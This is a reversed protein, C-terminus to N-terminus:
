EDVMGGEMVNLFQVVGHATGLPVISRFARADQKTYKYSPDILDRALGGAANVANIATGVSPIDKLSPNLGRTGGNRTNQTSVLGSMGPVVAGALNLGDQMVSTISSYALAGKLLGAGTLKDHLYKKRDADSKGQAGMAAKASYVLSSMALGYMGTFVSMSDAMHLQRMSQKELGVIPYNRFQTLMSGLTSHMWVHTEGVLPKQILQAAHKHIGEVFQDILLPDNWKHMNMRQLTESEWEFHKEVDKMRKFFATDWGVAKLRAEQGSFKGTAKYGTETFELGKLYGAMKNAQLAVTMQQQFRKISYMGSIWGSLERASSTFRDLQRIWAADTGLKDEVRINPPFLMHEDWLRGTWAQMDQLLGGDVTGDLLSKRFTRVAPLQEWMNRLGHEGMIQSFEAIQPMGAQALLSLGTWDMFRRANRNVGGAVPRSLLQDYTGAIVTKMHEITEPTDGAKGLGELVATRLATWDAESAIGKAALASRGSVEGVYRQHLRQMDNDVVDLLSYQKGEHEFTKLLDVGTRRKVRASAGSDSMTADIRALLSDVETPNLGESNMLMGRLYERSDKSLLAHPNADLGLDNTEARLWVQKAIKKSDKLPIGTVETVSEAYANKFKDSLGPVKHLMRMARGQWLLQVYGPREVIAEALHVGTEKMTRLASANAKDLADAMRQTAGGFPSVHEVGKAHANTRLEMETRLERNMDDSWSTDLVDRWRTKGNEARWAREFQKFEPQAHSLLRTEIAQKKIAANGPNHVVTTGNEMIDYMFAKAEDAKASLVFSSDSTAARGLKTQAQGILSDELNDFAGSAKLQRAHETYKLSASAGERVAHEALISEASAGETAVREVKAGKGTGVINFMGLTSGDNMAAEDWAAGISNRAKAFMGLSNDTGELNLEPKPLTPKKALMDVNQQMLEQARVQLRQGQQAKNLRPFEPVPEAGARDLAEAMSMPEQKAGAVLEADMAAQVNRGAKRAQANMQVAGKSLAGMAGGFVFGGAAAYAIDESDMTTGHTVHLADEYALMTAASSGAHFLANSARAGKTLLKTVLKGETGFMGIGVPDLLIAAGQAALATLGHTQELTKKDKMRNLVNERIRLDEEHSMGTFDKWYEEPIDKTLEPIAKQKDYNLDVIHKASLYDILGVTLNDQNFAAPVVESFFAPETKDRKDAQEQTVEPVVTLAPSELGETTGVLYPDSGSFPLKQVKEALRARTLPM